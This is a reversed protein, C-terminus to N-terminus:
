TAEDARAVDALTSHLEVVDELLSFLISELERNGLLAIQEALKPAPAGKRQIFREEIRATLVELGAAHRAVNAASARPDNLTQLLAKLVDLRQLDSHNVERRRRAEGPAVPAPSARENARSPPM